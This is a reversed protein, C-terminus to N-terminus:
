KFSNLLDIIRTVEDDTLAQNCPISLEQAHIQETIPLSLSSWESL